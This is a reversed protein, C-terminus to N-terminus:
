FSLRTFRLYGSIFSREKPRRLANSLFTVKCYKLEIKKVRPQARQLILM